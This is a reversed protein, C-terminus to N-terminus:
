GSDGPRKPRAPGQDDGRSQHGAPLHFINLLDSFRVAVGVAHLESHPPQWITQTSITGINKRGPLSLINFGLQSVRRPESRRVQVQLLIQAHPATPVQMLSTVKPTAKKVVELIKDAVTSSSIKGSLMVVDKSTEIHVPEAPFVEHIKQTLGLVDIDVSVEFAQSQDTEDWISCRFAARRRQWEGFGADPQRRDSRRGGSRGDVRAQYAGAFHDGALPGGASAANARQKRSAAARCRAKGSRAAATGPARGRAAGDARGGAADAVSVGLCLGAGTALTIAETRNIM